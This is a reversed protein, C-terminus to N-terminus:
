QEARHRFFPLAWVQLAQRLDPSTEPDFFVGYDAPRFIIKHNVTRTM